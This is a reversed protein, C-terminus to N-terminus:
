RYRGQIGIGGELEFRMWRAFSATEGVFVYFGYERRLDFWLGSLNRIGFDAGRGTGGADEYGAFDLVLQATTFLKSRGGESFFFRAGPSLHFMRPGGAGPAAGFDSELGIRLELLLDIKHAVGYGLELDFSFPARGTCVAAFGFEAQPDTTGCYITNDYPVIARGGLALRLSAEFQGKHSPVSAAGPDATSEAAATGASVLLACAALCGRM